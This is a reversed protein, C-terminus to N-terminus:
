KNIKTVIRVTACPRRGSVSKEFNTGGKVTRSVWCVFSGLAPTKASFTYYIYVTYEVSVAMALHEPVRKDVLTHTYKEYLQQQKPLPNKKRRKEVGEEDEEPKRSFIRARRRPGRTVVFRCRFGGQTVLRRSRVAPHVSVHRTDYPTETNLSAARDGANGTITVPGNEDRAPSLV